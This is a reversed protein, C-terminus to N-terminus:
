IASQATQRTAFAWRRDGHFQGQFAFSTEVFRIEFQALPREFRRSHTGTHSFPFFRVFHTHSLSFFVFSIHTLFLFFVVFLSVCKPIPSANYANAIDEWNRLRGYPTLKNTTMSLVDSSMVLELLLDTEPVNFISRCKKKSDIEQPEENLQRTKAIKAILKSKKKTSM